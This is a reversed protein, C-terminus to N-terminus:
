QIPEFPLVFWSQEEVIDVSFLSKRDTRHLDTPPQYLSYYYFLLVKQHFQQHIHHILQDDVQYVSHIILSSYLLLDLTHPNNCSHSFSYLVYWAITFCNRVIQQSGEVQVYM